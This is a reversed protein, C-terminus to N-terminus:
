SSMQLGMNLAGKPSALFSSTLIDSFVVRFLLSNPKEPSSNGLVDLLLSLDGFASQTAPTQLPLAHAVLAGCGPQSSHPLFATSLLKQSSFDQARAEPPLTAAGQDM